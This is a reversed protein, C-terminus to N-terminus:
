DADKFRSVQKGADADWLLLGWDRFGVAVL